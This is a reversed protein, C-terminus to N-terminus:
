WLVKIKANTKADTSYIWTHYTGSSIATSDKVAHTIDVGNADLIQISYPETTVGTLTVNTEAGAALNTTTTYYAPATIATRFNAATLATVTNDANIRPFTIASPNTLTFLAQGVTTGGLSTRGTAAVLSTSGGDWRLTNTYATGWNTINTGTIANAAHSTSMAGVMSATIGGVTGTFTPSAINAKLGLATSLDTQSSLLGTISGWSAAGAGPTAELITAGNYFKIDTGNSTISDVKVLGTGGVRLGGNANIVYKYNNQGYACLGLVAFFGIFLLRKM